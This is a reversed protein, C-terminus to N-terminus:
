LFLALVGHLCIDMKTETRVLAVVTHTCLNQALHSGGFQPEHGVVRHFADSQLTVANLDHLVYGNLDLGVAPVFAIHAGFFVFHVVLEFQHLSNPM